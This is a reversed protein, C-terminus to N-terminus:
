DRVIFRIGLRFRMRVRDKTGLGLCSVTDRIRVGIRFGLVM